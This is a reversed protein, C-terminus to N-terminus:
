STSSSAAAPSATGTPGRPLSSRGMLAGHRLPRGGGRCSDGPACARRMREPMASSAFPPSPCRPRVMLASPLPMPPLPMPPSPRHRHPRVMLASELHVSLVFQTPTVGRAVAISQPELALALHWTTRERLACPSVALRMSSSIEDSSSREVMATYDAESPAFNEGVYLVSIGAPQDARVHLSLTADKADTTEITFRRMQGYSLCGPRGENQVLSGEAFYLQTFRLRYVGRDDRLENRTATQLHWTSPEAPIYLGPVNYRAPGEELIGNALPVTTRVPRQGDRDVLNRVYQCLDGAPEPECDRKYPSNSQDIYTVPREDLVVAEIMLVLDLTAPGDDEEPHAGVAAAASLPTCESGIFCPASTNLGVTCSQSGPGLGEFSTLNTPCTEGLRKAYVGGAFGM